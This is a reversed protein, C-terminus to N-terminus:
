ISYKFTEPLDFPAAGRTSDFHLTGNNDSEFSSRCWNILAYTGMSNSCEKRSLRNMEANFKKAKNHEKLLEEYDPMRQLSKKITDAKLGTFKAIKNPGKGSKFWFRIEEKDVKM